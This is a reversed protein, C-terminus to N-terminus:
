LGMRQAVIGFANLMEHGAERAATKQLRWVPVGARLAEPISSRNGIKAPVMFSAYRSLMSQLAARQSISAANLRNPLMGLFALGTNFRQQVGVVTRLLQTTGDISYDDLEIPSLIFQAALMAASLRLGVGPPTDIVCFDFHGHLTPLARRLAPLVDQKPGQEIDSLLPSAGLLTIPQHVLVSPADPGFLRAADFDSRYRSLSKSANGQGDLDIVLVRKGKEELYMALHVAIATKGVGGKQNSVVITKM